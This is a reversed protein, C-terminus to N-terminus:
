DITYRGTLVLQGDPMLSKALGLRGHRDLGVEAALCDFDLHALLLLTTTASKLGDWDTGLPAKGENPPRKKKSVPGNEHGHFLLPPPILPLSRPTRTLSGNPAIQWPPPM